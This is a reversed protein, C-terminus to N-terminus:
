CIFNVRIGCTFENSFINIKTAEYFDVNLKGNDLLNKM